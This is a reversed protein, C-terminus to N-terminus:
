RSPDEPVYAGQELKIPTGTVVELEAEAALETEINRPDNSRRVQGEFCAGEEITLMKHFVDSYVRAKDQFIVRYARITGRVQGRVVVEDAIVNGIIMGEKGVL